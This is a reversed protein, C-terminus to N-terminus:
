GQNTFLVEFSKQVAIESYKSNLILNHYQNWEQKPTYKMNTIFNILELRSNCITILRDGLNKQLSLFCKRNSCLIPVGASISDIAAASLSCTYGDTYPLVSLECSKIANNYDESSEFIVTTDMTLNYLRGGGISVFDFKNNLKSLEKFINYGKNPTDYGIFCIKPRSIDTLLKIKSLKIPYHIVNIKNITFKEPFETELKEKIFDDIVIIQIRSTKNRIFMWQQIWYGFSSIKQRKLDFLGELEGHLVVFVNRFRILYNTLELMFMTTPLLCTILVIDGRRKRIIYYLAVIYELISKIILFRNEPNMVPIFQHVLISQLSESLCGFTTNSSCFILKTTKSVKTSNILCKLYGEILTIHQTKVKSPEIFYIKKM